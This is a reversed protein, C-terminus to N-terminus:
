LNDTEVSFVPQSAALHLDRVENPSLEYLRSSLVKIKLQAPVLRKETFARCVM